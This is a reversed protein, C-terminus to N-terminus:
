KEPMYADKLEKMFFSVSSEQFVGFNGLQLRQM